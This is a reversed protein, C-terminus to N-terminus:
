PILLLGKSMMNQECLSVVHVHPFAREGEEDWMGVRPHSWEDELHVSRSKLYLLLSVLIELSKPPGIM